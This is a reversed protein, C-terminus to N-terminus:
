NNKKLDTSVIHTFHRLTLHATYKVCSQHKEYSVSTLCRNKPANAFNRSAVILKTMDTQIFPVVWSGSSPNEHFKFNSYKKKGFETTFTSTENFGPLFFPHQVHLGIYKQYLRVWNKRSHTLKLCSTCLLGFYM